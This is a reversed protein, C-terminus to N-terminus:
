ELSPLSNSSGKVTMPHRDRIEIVIARQFDQDVVAMVTGTQQFVEAIMAIPEQQIQLSGLRIATRDAGSDIDAGAAMLLCLFDPTPTSVIRLTIKTQM